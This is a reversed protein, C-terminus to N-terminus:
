EKSYFLKEQLVGHQVASVEIKWELNGLNLDRGINNAKLRSIKSNRKAGSPWSLNLIIRM